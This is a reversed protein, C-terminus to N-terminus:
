DVRWDALVTNSPRKLVLLPSRPNYFAASVAAIEHKGRRATFFNPAARGALTVASVQATSFIGDIHEFPRSILASSRRALVPCLSGAIYM